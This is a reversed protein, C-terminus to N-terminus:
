LPNALTVTGGAKLIGYYAITFELSNALSLMVKDGTRIGLTHLGAALKDTLDDLEGYSLSQGRCSFAISEPWKEAARSLLQFLPIEPYDLHRPVGEPWFKFWPKDASLQYDM